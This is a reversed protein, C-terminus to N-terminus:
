SLMREISFISHSFSTGDTGIGVIVSFWGGFLSSAEREVEVKQHPTASVLIFMKTM